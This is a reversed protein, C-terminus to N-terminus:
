KTLDDLVDKAKEVVDGFFNGAKDKLDDLNSLDINQTLQEIGDKASEVVEGLKENLNLNELM